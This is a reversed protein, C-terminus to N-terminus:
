GRSSYEPGSHASQTPSVAAKAAIVSCRREASRSQTSRTADCSCSPPDCRAAPFFSPKRIAEVNNLDKHGRHTDAGSLSRHATVKQSLNRQPSVRGALRSNKHPLVSDSVENNIVHCSHIIIKVYRTEFLKFALPSRAPIKTPRSHPNDALRLLLTQRHYQYGSCFLFNDPGRLVGVTSETSWPRQSNELGPPTFQSPEGRGLM